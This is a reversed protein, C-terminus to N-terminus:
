PNAPNCGISIGPIWFTIKEMRKAVCRNKYDEAIKVQLAQM